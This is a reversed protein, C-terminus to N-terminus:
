SSSSCSDIKQLMHKEMRESLYDYLLPHPGYIESFDLATKGNEKTKITPDAGAEILLKVIDYDGRSAAFHLATAGVTKSPKGLIYKRYWNKLRWTLTQPSLRSNVRGVGGYNAVHGNKWEIERMADLSYLLTRLMESDADANACAHIINTAGSWSKQDLLTLNKNLLLEFVQKKMRGHGIAVHLVNNGGTLERRGLDWSPFHELWYTIVGINGHCQTLTLLLSYSLFFFITM